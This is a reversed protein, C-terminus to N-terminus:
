PAPMRRRIEAHSRLGLAHLRAWQRQRRALAGAVFAAATARTRLAGRHRLMWDYSAAM